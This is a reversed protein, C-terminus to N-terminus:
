ASHRRTSSHLAIAIAFPLKGHRKFLKPRLVHPRVALSRRPQHVAHPRQRPPRNKKRRQSKLVPPPNKPRKHHRVCQRPNRMKEDFVVFRRRKPMRQPRPPRILAHHRQHERPPHIRFHFTAPLRSRLSRAPRGPSCPSAFDRSLSFCPSYIRRQAFFM